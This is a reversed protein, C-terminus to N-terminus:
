IIRLIDKLCLGRKMLLKEKGVELEKIGNVKIVIVMILYIDNPLFFQKLIMANKHITNINELSKLCKKLWKLFLFLHILKNMSYNTEQFSRVVQQVKMLILLLFGKNLSNKKMMM